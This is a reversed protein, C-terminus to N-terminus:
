VTVSLPRLDSIVSHLCRLAPSSMDTSLISYEVKESWESHGIGGTKLFNLASVSDNWRGSSQGIVLLFGAVLARATMSFAVSSGLVNPLRAHCRWM